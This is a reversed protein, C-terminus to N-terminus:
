SSENSGPLPANRQFRNASPSTCATLVLPFMTNAPPWKRFAHAVFWPPPLGHTQVWGTARFRNKAVSGAPRQKRPVRVAVAQVAHPGQAAINPVDDGATVERDDVGHV